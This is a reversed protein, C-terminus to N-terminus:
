EEHVHFFFPDISPSVQQTHAADAFLRHTAFDAHRHFKVGHPFNATDPTNAATFVGYFDDEDAVLHQYDGLYPNFIIAPALAPTTSLILDPTEFQSPDHRLTRTFHTEWRQTAGSGTLQQYLFGVRHDGNIALAPSIGNAVTLLDGSWSVGRDTSRRVHLTQNTTGSPQDGWAIYVHSSNKPDVAIAMNSAGLRQQGMSGFTLTVGQVVRKGALGDTDVLATFPTASNAWSDDRLVVVDSSVGGGAFGRWGYFAVYVTGDRNTAPVQAFGDQGAAGTSRKEIPDLNFPPTAADADQSVDVTASQPNVGGWGNNFGVYVRDKGADPGSPVTVAQTHPQDVNTTRTDLLTMATSSFFNHTRLVNVSFDPSHLIGTYLVNTSGAKTSSFHLTIDGTPVTAGATSPVSKAVHWHQGRDHSVYIPASSGSMALQFWSAPTGPSGPAWCFNDWTFASAAIQERHDLNITLTPEADQCTEGSRSMPVMNVVSIHDHKACGGCLLAISAMPLVLGSHIAACTGRHKV